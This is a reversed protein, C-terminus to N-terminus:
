STSAGAQLMKLKQSLAELAQRKTAMENAMQQRKGTFSTQKPKTYDAAIMSGLKPADGKANQIIIAAADEKSRPADTQAGQQIVAHRDSNLSKQEGSVQGPNASAEMKWMTELEHHVQKEKKSWSTHPIEPQEAGTQVQATVLLWIHRTQLDWTQKAAKIQQSKAGKTKMENARKMWTHKRGEKFFDEQSSLQPRNQASVQEAEMTPVTASNAVEEYGTIITPTQGAEASMSRHDPIVGEGEQATVGQHDSIESEGLPSALRNRTSKRKRLPSVEHSDRKKDRTEKKEHHRDSLSKHQQQQELLVIIKKLERLRKVKTEAAKKAAAQEKLQQLRKTRIHVAKKAAAKQKLLALHTAELRQLRRAEQAVKTAAAKKVANTDVVEKQVVDKGVPTAGRNLAANAKQKVSSSHLHVTQQKNQQLQTNSTTTVRTQKAQQKQEAKSYRVTERARETAVREAQQQLRGQWHTAQPVGVDAYLADAPNAVPSVKVLRPVGWEEHKERQHKARVGWEEHKERQHKARVGWEEHKERQHKAQVSAETKVQNKPVGWDEHKERQHKAQVSGETEVQTQMPVQQPKGTQLSAELRVDGEQLSGQADKPPKRDGTIEETDQKKSVAPTVAPTPRAEVFKTTDQPSPPAHPLPPMPPWPSAESPQPSEFSKGMIETRAESVPADRADGTSGILRRWDAESSAEIQRDAQM